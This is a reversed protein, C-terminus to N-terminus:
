CEAWVTGTYMLRLMTNAVYTKNAAGALYINGRASAHVVTVNANTFLISVVQRKIGNTLSILNAAAGPAIIIEDNYKVDGSYETPYNTPDPRTLSKSALPYQSGTYDTTCNYATNTRDWQIPANLNAGVTCTDALCGEAKVIGAVSSAIDFGRSVANRATLNKLSLNTCTDVGFGHLGPTLAEVDSIEVNNYHSVIVATNTPSRHTGGKISLETGTGSHSANIGFSCSYSDNDILRLRKGNVIRYATLLAGTVKNQQLTTISTELGEGNSDNHFFGYKKPYNAFNGVANYNRVNAFGFAAPALSESNTLSNTNFAFNNLVDTNEAGQIYIGAGFTQDVSVSSFVGSRRGGSINRVSNGIIKTREVAQGTSLTAQGARYAMIGYTNYGDIYNYLIKNDLCQGTDDDNLTQVIVAYAGGSQMDNNEITNRSGGYQIVVDGAISWSTTGNGGNGDSFPDWNVTAASRFKVHHIHCDDKYKIYCGAVAYNSLTGKTVETRTGCRICSGDGLGTKLGGAAVSVEVKVDETNYLDLAIFSGSSSVIRGPGYIRAGNASATAIITSSIGYSNELYVDRGSNIANTLAMKDDSVLDGKAGWMEPKVVKHLETKVQVGSACTFYAGGDDTGTGAAVVLGRNGGGDFVSYYGVWEVLKGIDDVTLVSKMDAVISFRRQVINIESRLGADSRMVFGATIAPDLGAAVVKPFAGSWAYYNGLGASGIKDNLFVQAANTLTGGSTATWTQVVMGLDALVQPLTKQVQGTVQNTATPIDVGSPLGGTKGTVVEAFFMSHKKDAILDDITLVDTM